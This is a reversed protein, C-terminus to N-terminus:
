GRESVPQFDAEKRWANDTLARAETDGLEGCDCEFRLWGRARPDNEFVSARKDCRGSYCKRTGVLRRIELPKMAEIRRLRENLEPSFYPSDKHM